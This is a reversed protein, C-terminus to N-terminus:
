NEFGTLGPEHIVLHLKSTTHSPKTVPSASPSAPYESRCDGQRTREGRVVALTPQKTLDRSVASPGPDQSGQRCPVSLGDFTLERHHYFLAVSFLFIIQKKDWFLVLPNM